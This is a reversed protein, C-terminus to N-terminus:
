CLTRARRAAPSTNREESDPAPAVSVTPRWDLCSRKRKGTFAKRPAAGGCHQAGYQERAGSSSSCWCAKATCSCTNAGTSAAHQLYVQLKLYGPPVGAVGIVDRGERLLALSVEKQQTKAALAALCVFVQATALADFGAEHSRAEPLENVVNLEKFTFSFFGKRSEAVEFCCALDPVGLLHNRLVYLATRGFSSCPTLYTAIYKTDFVGGIFLRCVESAFLQLTSPVEQVFKEILHLLDLLGNHVVLPAEAEILASALVSLGGCSSSVVDDPMEVGQLTAASGGKGNEQQENEPAPDPSPAVTLAGLTDKAGVHRDPNREDGSSGSSSEEEGLSDCRCNQNPKQRHPLDQEQRRLRGKELECTRQQQVDCLRAYDLGQALWKNFDFGNRQLFRLAKLDVSFVSRGSRPHAEFTYPHLIWRTPDAEDRRACCIGVQPALFEQVAKRCEAFYSELSLPEPRHGLLLGTFELDVAVFDANHIDRVAQMLQQQQQQRQLCM